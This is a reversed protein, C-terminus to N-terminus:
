QNPKDQVWAVNREIISYVKEKIRDGRIQMTFRAFLVDQEYQERLIATNMRSATDVVLTYISDYHIEEISLNKDKAYGTIVEYAFQSVCSLHALTRLRDKKEEEGKHSSDTGSILLTLQYTNSNVWGLQSQTVPAEATPASKIARAVQPNKIMGKKIVVFCIVAAALILFLISQILLVRGKRELARPIFLKKNEEENEAASSFSESPHAYARLADLFARQDKPSLIYEEGSSLKLLIFFGTTNIGHRVINYSVGTSLAKSVIPVTCYRIFHGYRRNSRWWGGPDLTRESQVLTTQYGTLLRIAERESLEKAGSVEAFPIFKKAMGRKLLLGETNVEYYSGPSFVQLIVISLFLAGFAIIGIGTGETGKILIWSGVPIFIGFSLIFIWVNHVSRRADFRHPSLELFGEGKM